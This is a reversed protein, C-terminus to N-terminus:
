AVRGVGTGTVAWLRLGQGKSSGTCGPPCGSWGMTVKVDRHVRKEDHLYALARLVGQLIYAICAEDLPSSPEASSHLQRTASASHANHFM